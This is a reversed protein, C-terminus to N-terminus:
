GHTYFDQFALDKLVPAHRVQNIRSIVTNLVTILIYYFSLLYIKIFIYFGIKRNFYGYCKGIM